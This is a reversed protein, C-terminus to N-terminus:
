LVKKFGEKLQKTRETDVKYQELNKIYDQQNTLIQSLIKTSVEQLPDVQKLGEFQSTFVGIFKNLKVIDKDKQKNEQQLNFLEKEIDPNSSSSTGLNKFAQQSYNDIYELLSDNTFYQKMWFFSQTNVPNFINKQKVSPIFDLYMNKLMDKSSQKWKEYKACYLKFLKDNALLSPFAFSLGDIFGEEFYPAKKDDLKKMVSISSSIDVGINAAQSAVFGLSYHIADNFNNSHKGLVKHVFSFMLSKEHNTKNTSLELSLRFLLCGFLLNPNETEALTVGSIKKFQEPEFFDFFLISMFRSYNTDTMDIQEFHSHFDKAISTLTNPQYDQELNDFVNKLTFTNDM